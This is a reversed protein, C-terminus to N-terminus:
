DKDKEDGVMELASFFFPIEISASAASDSGHISNQEVNRGFEKRITGEMAEQPSTSGMLTRFREIAAEGELVMAVVPGSCMFGTLSNFFPRQAHAQYFAQAQGKNLTIMKIAVMKFGSAEIRQLIKGTLGRELADPKVIALTREKM